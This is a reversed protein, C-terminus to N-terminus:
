QYSVCVNTRKHLFFHANTVWQARKVPVHAHVCSISHQSMGPLFESEDCVGGTRFVMKKKKTKQGCEWTYSAMM